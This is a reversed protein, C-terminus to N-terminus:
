MLNCVIVQRFISPLSFAQYLSYAHQSVEILTLGSRKCLPGGPSLVHGPTNIMKIVIINTWWILRITLCVSIEDHTVHLYSHPFIIWWISTCANLVTLIVYCQTWLFLLQYWYMFLFVELEKFLPKTHANYKSNTMIRLAWKRLKFIRNWEFGWCTIGFKLHSLILSYFM